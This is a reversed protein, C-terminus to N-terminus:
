RRNPKRPLAQKSLNDMLSAHVVASQRGRQIRDWNLQGCIPDWTLDPYRVARLLLGEAPALKFNPHPVGSALTAEIAELPIEGRGIRLMADVMRRVQNWLFGPSAITFKWFEGAQEVRCEKIIRVPNRPAEVRAFGRMDKEGEFLACAAQMVDLSEGRSAAHYEYSRIAHYRPVFDDPVPTAATVWIGIPLHNQIRHVIGKLHPRDLKCSVVNELASVRADTRSGTKFSHEVLGERRLAELLVGEVTYLDRDRAYADFQSGDYAIRLALHM